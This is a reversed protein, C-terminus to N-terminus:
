SPKEGVPKVEGDLPLRIFFTTGKGVESAFTLTGGHKDVVVSHAIALGQGTGRGSEKTTFFPDFIKDRIDEPIGGGTDAISILVADKELATRVRIVGKQGTGNVADGIAHAANVLLNLFVQNLEGINCVALPLDGLETEVEAVYKLENRAVTLTSLLAANIDAAAREKRDPHAFEKMARVLTAVRAVGDLSQAIAKPIEEVLYNIDVAMEAEAVEDALMMGAVGNAAADSLHRYKEMVKSLDSFADHLFQMNDGVFQIPTNIEHAIGAALRGVAELKQAQRFQEELARRETVDSGIVLLTTSNEDAVHVPTVTLGLLRTKGNMEFPVEDSRRSGRESCWSRIEDQMGPRLWRIGCDTLQKGVVEDGSLGFVGAAALNWRTIRSDHGAGILISPVANIFVEAERHAARLAEKENRLRTTIERVMRRIILLAITCPVVVAVVIILLALRRAAAYHARSQQAALELRDGQFGVFKDWAAHYKLLAPATQQVMVAAAVDRKRENVLLHLARQYSDIYPSRADEIAALLRKEEESECRSELDAVLSSIRKTNEARAVLLSSIQERNNLLFIQMTIRSNRNSYTVAELSLRLKASQRGMMNQLDANIHDMRRLGMDGVAILLAALISFALGLCVTVQGIALPSRSPLSRSHKNNGDDVFLIRKV